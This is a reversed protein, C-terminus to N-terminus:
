KYYILQVRADNYNRDKYVFLYRFLFFIFYELLIKILVQIFRFKSIRLTVVRPANLKSYNKLKIM